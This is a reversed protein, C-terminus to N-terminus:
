QADSGQHPDLDHHTHHHEGESLLHSHEHEHVIVHTHTSGDHTHTILHRHMHAHSRKLTDIVLLITGAAMIALAVYFNWSPFDQFIALSFVAGLFPNVAYFASTKAAGLSKQAKIYFFVSLGYAVFGLLLAWLPYQWSTLREGILFGILLSSTGCSLGKIMTIQDSSKSSLKRTCNNEIGWCLTAGVVLLSGWSFSLSSLDFTLLASSITVLAIAIWLRPSIKEKFFTLAIVSTAVIEFNGLLSANGPASYILGFMLLIPAAIDLVIMGVTPWIDGHDLLEAKPIHRFRCLFMIGVGIGAGLYLLGAMLTPPIQGLLLKSLPINVAYFSAAMLAFLISVVRTKVRYMKDFM